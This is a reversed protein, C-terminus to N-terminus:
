GKAKWINNKGAAKEVGVEIFNDERRHTNVHGELRM